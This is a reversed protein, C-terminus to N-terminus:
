CNNLPGEFWIHQDKSGPISTLRSSYRPGELWIDQEKTGPINSRQVLYSEGEYLIHRDPYRPGKILIGKTRRVPNRQDKSGSEKPGEFRIGETRRVPNRRDKSDSEKPGIFRIGKTRRVPNAQADVLLQKGPGGYGLPGNVTHVFSRLLFPRNLQSRM